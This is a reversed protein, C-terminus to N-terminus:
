DCERGSFRIDQKDGGVIHVTVESRVAMREHLRWIQIPQAPHSHTKVRSVALLRQTPGLRTLTM